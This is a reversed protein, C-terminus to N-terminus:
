DSARPQADLGALIHNEREEEAGLDELDCFYCEMGRRTAGRAYHETYERYASCSYRADCNRCVSVAFPVHTGALAKRLRSVPPPEFCGEEIDDVVRGFREVTAEVHDTNYTLRIVPDWKQMLKELQAVDGGDLATRIEDPFRTCIIATEHLKQGRLKTWIYAYVDLQEAYDEKNANIVERDHTKVDYLVTRDAERVIDVVGEIGFPRGARSKQDPLNLKVETDTIKLAIDRLRRWYMLVQNLAAQKLEPSLAHGGEMQLAQFNQEFFANIREEIQADTLRM